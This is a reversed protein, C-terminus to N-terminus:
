NTLRVLTPLARHDVKPMIPTFVLTCVHQSHEWGCLKRVTGSPWRCIESGLRHDNGGFSTSMAFINTHLRYSSALNAQPRVLFRKRVRSRVSICLTQIVDCPFSVVAVFGSFDRFMGFCDRFLGSYDRNYCAVHRESVEIHRESVKSRGV